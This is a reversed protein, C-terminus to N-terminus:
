RMTMKALWFSMAFSSFTAAPGLSLDVLKIVKGSTITMLTRIALVAM